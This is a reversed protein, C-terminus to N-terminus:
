IIYVSCHKKHESVNKVAAFICMQKIGALM